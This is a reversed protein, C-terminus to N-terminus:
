FVNFYEGGFVEKVAFMYNNLRNYSTAREKAENASIVEGAYEAVFQGKTIHQTCRLGYGKDVTKFVQM